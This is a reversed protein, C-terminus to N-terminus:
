PAPAPTPHYRTWLENYKTDHYESNGEHVRAFTGETADYVHLSAGLKKIRAAVRGPDCLTGKHHALGIMCHPTMVVWTEDTAQGYADIQEELWECALHNNKLEVAVM